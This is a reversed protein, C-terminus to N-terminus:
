KNVNRCKVNNYSGNVCIEIYPYTIVMTAFDKPPTVNYYVIIGNSTKTVNIINIKYGATPMEGLNIVIFTKNYENYYYYGSHKEGFSGYAIIEYNLLKVSNNKIKNETINQLKSNNFYVTNNYDYCSSNEINSKNIISYNKHIEPNEFCGCFLVVFILFFLMRLTKM